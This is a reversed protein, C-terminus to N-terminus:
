DDWSFRPVPYPYCTVASSRVDLPASRNATKVIRFAGSRCPIRIHFVGGATSYEYRIRHRCLCEAADRETMAGAIVSRIRNQTILQKM